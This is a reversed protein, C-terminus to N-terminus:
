AYGGGFRSEAGFLMRESFDPGVPLRHIFNAPRASENAPFRNQPM